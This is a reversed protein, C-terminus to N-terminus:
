SALQAIRHKLRIANQERNDISLVRDCVNAADDYRGVEFYTNALPVLISNRSKRDIHGAPVDNNIANDAKIFMEIAYNPNYYKNSYPKFQYIMAYEKYVRYIEPFSTPIRGLLMLAEGYNGRSREFKAYNTILTVYQRKDQDTIDESDNIHKGMSAAWEDYLDHQCKNLEKVRALDNSDKYRRNNRTNLITRVEERYSSLLSMVGNFPRESETIKGFHERAADYDGRQMYMKGISLHSPIDCPDIDDLIHTFVAEAFRDMNLVVDEASGNHAHTCLDTLLKTLPIYNEKDVYKVLAEVPDSLSHVSVKLLRSWIYNSNMEETTLISQIRELSATIMADCESDSVIGDSKRKVMDWLRDFEEAVLAEKSNEHEASHDKKGESCPSQEDLGFLGLFNKILKVDM